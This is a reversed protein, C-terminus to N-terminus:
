TVSVGVPFVREFFMHDKRALCSGTRQFYLAVSCQLFSFFFHVYFSADFIMYWFSVGVFFFLLFKVCLCSLCLLLLSSFYSSFMVCLCSLCVLSFM